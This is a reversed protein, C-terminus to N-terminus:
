GKRLEKKRTSVDFEPSALMREVTEQSLDPVAGFWLRNMFGTVVIELQSWSRGGLGYIHRQESIFGVMGDWIDIDTKIIEERRRRYDEFQAFFPTTLLNKLVQKVESELLLGKEVNESAHHRIRDSIFALADADSSIDGSRLRRALAEAVPLNTNSFPRNELQPAFVRRSAVVLQYDTERDFRQHLGARQFAGNLTSDTALHRALALLEEPTTWDYEPDQNAETVETEGELAASTM